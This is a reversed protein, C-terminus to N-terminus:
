NPVYSRLRVIERLFKPIWRWRFTSKTGFFTMSFERTSWGHQLSLWTMGVQFEPGNECHAVTGDVLGHFPIDELAQRPWVKFAHTPYTGTGGLVLLSALTAGFTVARRYLPFADVKSGRLFYSGRAILRETKRNAVVLLMDWADSPQQTGVDAVLIYAYGGRLATELGLCTNRALGQRGEPRVVTVRSVRGAHREKERFEEIILTTDDQSLGDVFMLDWDFRSWKQLCSRIADEENLVPIIVVANLSPAQDSM